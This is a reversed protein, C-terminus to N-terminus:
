DINEEVLRRMPRWPGRRTVSFNLKRPAVITEVGRRETVDILAIHCRGDPQSGLATSELSVFRATGDASNMTLVCSQQTESSFVAQRHLYWSDQSEHALFNSLNDRLLAQHETGLITAATFNAELIQGERNVTIYGVPAFDYLFTYRDRSRALELQALRLEENQIELEIQHGQVEHVLAELDTKGMGAIDPRTARLAETRERLMEHGGVPKGQSHTKEAM